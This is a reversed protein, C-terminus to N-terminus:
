RTDSEVDNSDDRPWPPLPDTFRRWGAPGSTLERDTVSAEDLAAFLLTAHLDLGTFAIDQGTSADHMSTTLPDLWMASGVHDWRALTHPRTAIRCFGGSRLIMGFRGADMEDFTRSLRGPHFPRLREYRVTAVRIDTMWPDHEHNLSCVWGAREPLSSPPPPSAELSRVDEEPSRSLRVRAHPNLHSALAMLMSLTATELEEWGVLCVISAAEVLTAARRARAGHDGDDTGPLPHEILPVGSTLDDVMHTADVVCIIPPPPMRDALPSHLLDAETAMEAIFPAPGLLPSAIVTSDRSGVTVVPRGTAASLRDAYRRREPACVGVIILPDPLM